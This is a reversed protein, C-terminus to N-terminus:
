KKVNEVDYIITKTIPKDIFPICPNFPEETKFSPRFDGDGDAYFSIYESHGIVGNKEMRNLMSLFPSIWEENMTATITFTKQM